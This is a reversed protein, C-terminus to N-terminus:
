KLTMTKLKERIIICPDVVLPWAPIQRRYIISHFAGAIEKFIRAPAPQFKIGFPSAQPM